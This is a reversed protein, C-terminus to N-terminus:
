ETDSGQAARPEVAASPPKDFFPELFLWNYSVGLQVLGFIQYLLDFSPVAGSYELDRYHYVFLPLAVAAYLGSVVNVVAGGCNAIRAPLYVGILSPQVFRLAGEILGLFSAWTAVVFFQHLFPTALLSFGGVFNALLVLTKESVDYSRLLTDAVLTGVLKALAFALFICIPGIDDFAFASLRPTIKDAYADLLTTSIAFLHVNSIATFLLLSFVGTRLVQLIAVHASLPQVIPALTTLSVQSASRRVSSTQVTKANTHANHLVDVSVSREPAFIIKQVLNFNHDANTPETNVRRRAPRELVHHSVSHLEREALSNVRQRYGIDQTQHRRQAAFPLKGDITLSLPVRTEIRELEIAKDLLPEAAPGDKTLYNSESVSADRGISRRSVASPPRIDFQQCQGRYQILVVVVSHLSIGSIILLAGKMLLVDDLVFLLPGGIFGGLISGVERNFHLQGAAADDKCTSTLARALGVGVGYVTSAATLGLLLDEVLFVLGCGFCSVFVAALMLVLPPEFVRGLLMSSLGEMIAASGAMSAAPICAGLRDLGYVRALKLVLVPQASLWMEQFFSFLAHLLLRLRWSGMAVM